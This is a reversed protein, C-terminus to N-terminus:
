QINFEFWISIARRRSSVGKLGESNGFDGISKRPNKPRETIKPRRLCGMERDVFTFFSNAVQAAEYIETEVPVLKETSSIIAKLNPSIGFFSTSDPTFAPIM